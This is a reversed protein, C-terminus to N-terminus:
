QEAGQSSESGGESSAGERERAAKERRRQEELEQEIEELTKQREGKVWKSLVNPTIFIMFEDMTEQKSESGFLRNGGPLDKLYPVGDENHYSRQKSLGSIVVTEGDRAILTTETKKKLIFYNGDVERSEDVEDKQILINLKIYQEDIIHPTIELRLVVEEFKVTTTVVGGSTETTAYPVREGSETYAKQNDMTTISPSSIIRLKNDQELAKLQLELVNEGVNGFMMGLSLGMAKEDFGSPTLNIGVGKGSPGTGFTPDYTGMRSETTSGSTTAGTGGGPNIYVNSGDYVNGQYSGGWQVGLARATDRTTEVIHAKLKIQARPADLRTVIRMLRDVDSRISNVILSNTHADVEISGIPKGDDDKALFTALNEKLTAADSFKVRMISTVLPEARQRALREAQQQTRLQDMELDYKMDEATMVRIINGEWTYALRNASLVGQFVESWPTKVININVVGQVSPSVVISQRAARSLAQLVAVLDADHMRLTIKFDPLSRPEPEAAKPDITDARVTVDEFRDVEETRASPSHGQSQEAMIRWKEMEPDTLDKDATSACGAALAALGLMALGLVALRSLRSKTAAGRRKM